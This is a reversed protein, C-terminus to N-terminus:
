RSTFRHFHQRECTAMWQNLQWLDAVPMDTVNTVLLLKGDNHQARQLAHEDIPQQFDTPRRTTQAIRM